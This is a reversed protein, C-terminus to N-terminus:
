VAAWMLKGGIIRYVVAQICEVNVAKDASTSALVVELKLDEYARTNKGGVFRKADDWEHEMSPGFYVWYTNSDLMAEPNKFRYENFLVRRYLTDTILNQKYFIYHSGDKLNFSTVAEVGDDYDCAYSTSLDAADRVMLAYSIINMNQTQRLDIDQTTSSGSSVAKHARHYRHGYTQWFGRNNYNNIILNTVEDNAVYVAELKLDTITVTGKTTHTTQVVKDQNSQIHFVIELPKVSDRMLNIPFPKRFIDFVYHMDLCLEQAAAGASNRDSASGNGIQRKVVTMEHDDTHTLINHMIQDPYVQAIVEGQSELDIREFLRVGINNVFRVYESTPVATSFGSFAPLDILLYLGQLLQNGQKPILFRVQQGFAKADTSTITRSDRPGAVQQMRSSLYTRQDVTTM